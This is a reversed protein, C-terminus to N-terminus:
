ETIEGDNQEDQVNIERLREEKKYKALLLHLKEWERDTLHSSEDYLNGFINEIKEKVISNKAFAEELNDELRKDIDNIVDDM